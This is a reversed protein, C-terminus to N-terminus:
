GFNTTHISCTFSPIRKKIPVAVKQSQLEVLKWFQSTSVETWINVFLSESMTDWIASIPGQGENTAKIKANSHYNFGGWTEANVYYFCWSFHWDCWMQDDALLDASQNKSAYLSAKISITPLDLEDGDCPAMTITNKYLIFGHIAHFDKEEDREDEYWTSLWNFLCWWDGDGNNAMMMTSAMLCIMMMMGSMRM